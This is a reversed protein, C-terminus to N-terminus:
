LTKMQWFRLMARERLRFPLESSQVWKNTWRGVEQKDANGIERMAVGDSKLGDSVIAALSGHRKLAKRTFSLAAQKDGTKTVYSEVIEGEQDVTRGLHVMEGNLKVYM